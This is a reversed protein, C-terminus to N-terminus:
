KPEVERLFYEPEVKRCFSNPDVVKSCFNGPNSKGVSDM